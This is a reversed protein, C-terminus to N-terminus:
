RLLTALFALTDELGHCVAGALINGTKERLLGYFVGAATAAVSSWWAFDYCGEYYNVPNLAHLLGFLLASIVLGPGFRVSGVRWPLGFAVNLRSQLYGRYFVEEGLGAGICLWGVSALLWAPSRGQAMGVGVPLALLAAWLVLTFVWSPRRFFAHDPKLMLVLGTAGLFGAGSILGALLPASPRLPMLVRPLLLYLLAAGAALLLGCALGLNVDRRPECPILGYTAFSRRCAPLLAITVLIMVTGPTYNLKAAAELRGVETFQKVARFSVHTLAFMVAVEALATPASRYAPLPQDASVSPCSSDHM